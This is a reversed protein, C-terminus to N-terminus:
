RTSGEARKILFDDLKKEADAQAQIAAAYLQPTMYDQQFEELLEKAADLAARHEGDPDLEVDGYLRRLFKVFRLDLKKTSMKM